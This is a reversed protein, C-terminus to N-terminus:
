RSVTKHARVKPAVKMGMEKCIRSNTRYCCLFVLTPTTDTSDSDGCAWIKPRPIECCMHFVVLPVLLM